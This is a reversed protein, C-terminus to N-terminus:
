PSHRDVFPRSIRNGHAAGASPQSSCAVEAFLHPSTNGFDIGEELKFIFDDAAQRVAASGGVTHNFIVSVIIESSGKVKCYGSLSVVKNLTGTKGRFTSGKLRNSLTGAENPAALSRMWTENWPRRRAWALVKAIGRATVNNHRSLGSGDYVDFEDKEIGAASEFFRQMATASSTGPFKQTATLHLLSDALFNDSPKLCRGALEGITAGQIILDPERNPLEFAEFLPGALTMAAAKDPEPIAFGEIVTDTKPPEGYVTMVKNVLDFHRSPTASPLSRIRVGFSDPKFYFGKEASGWLEFGGRDVTFATIAPAYRHPVDDWEWGFGWGVRYGQKVFVPTLKSIGLKERAERLQAYTMSPDGPADVVLRDAEKWLRTTPRWQEGLNELAFAVSLIKQNSAPMVRLGENRAYLIKGNLDTVCVAVMARKLAPRDLIADLDSTTPGQLVFPFLALM